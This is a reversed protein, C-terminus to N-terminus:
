IRAAYLQRLEYRMKVNITPSMSVRHLLVYPEAATCFLREHFSIKKKELKKIRETCEAKTLVKVNATQLISAIQGTNSVGWGV